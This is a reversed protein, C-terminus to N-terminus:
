LINRIVMVAWHPRTVRGKETWFKKFRYSLGVIEKNNSYYTKKM